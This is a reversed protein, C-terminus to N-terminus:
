IIGYKLQWATQCLILYVCYKVVYTCILNKRVQVKDKSQCDSIAEGSKYPDVEGCHLIDNISFKSTKTIATSTKMEAIQVEIIDTETSIKSATM